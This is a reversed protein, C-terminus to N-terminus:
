PIMPVPFLVLGEMPFHKVNSTMLQFGRELATAAILTDMLGLVFGRKRWAKRLESSRMAIPETVEFVAVNKLLREVELREEEKM